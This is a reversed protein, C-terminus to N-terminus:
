QQWMVPQVMKFRIKKSFNHTSKENPCDLSINLNVDFPFADRDFDFALESLHFQGNRYQGIEKERMWSSHKTPSLAQDLKVVGSDSNIMAVHNLTITCNRNLYSKEYFMDVLLFGIGTNADRLTRQSDSM